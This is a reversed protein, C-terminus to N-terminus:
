ARRLVRVPEVRRSAIGERAPLGPAHKEGVAREHLSEGSSKRSPQDPIHEEAPHPV